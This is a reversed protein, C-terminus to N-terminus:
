HITASPSVERQVRFEISEAIRDYDEALGLLNERCEPEDIGAAIIRVERAHHRFRAGRIADDRM